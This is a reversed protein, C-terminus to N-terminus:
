NLIVGDKNLDAVKRCLDLIENSKLNGISRLAQEYMLLDTNLLVRSMTKLQDVTFVTLLYKYYDKIYPEFVKEDVSFSINMADTSNTGHLAKTYHEIFGRLVYTLYQYVERPIFEDSPGKFAETLTKDVM